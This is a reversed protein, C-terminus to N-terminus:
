RPRIVDLTEGDTRVIVAGDRDTRLIRAGARAYRDLVDPHPFGFTNDPGCSIVAIKPRVARLFLLTSSTHGGHHPAMLIDAELDHGSAILREEVLGSIDAPLLISRRGFTIKMVIGNDNYNSGPFPLERGPPSRDPGLIKISVGGVTCEPVDTGVIRHPIGKERIVKQLMLCSENESEQGNSWFEGVTFNKALFPLGGIHDQDPHTLVMIDIKRIKERWLYPGVVYRGLDFTRDYFGGGDVLMVDGGPFQLLTSSGQGVDIFTVELHRRGASRLNTCFADAIFFLTILGLFSILLIRERARYREKLRETLSPSPAAYSTECEKSRWRNILRVGTLVCLYYLAIEPFTPTTVPISAFPFSSLFEIISTTIRIFFSAVAILVSAVPAFPATVTLLMGLPLVAFGIIPIVLLNSLLTVTSIRNFYLAILPATGIVAALSVLIFLVVANMGRRFIGEGAVRPIVSSLAPTVLLIAAVATFSLQFSVDFLSAPSIVLILFAAFALINLLDRGRGILLAALYCLIMIVARITSIRLGAIFAYGIVPVISCLASVKFINYRLLFQESSRMLARAAALCIFAVIGVHLGSIALIHSVGARNFGRIIDEPIAEKEGLILAQLVSGELTPAGELIRERILSRYREIRTRLYGGARQRMIVIESSRGVYGHLRIGRYLLYREYDFGGPNDFSRPKKLRTSARIYNGYRFVNNSDKVSLLIKGRVPVAGGDRILRRTDIVLRTKGPMIRPPACVMGEVTLRDEGAHRAIHDRGAHPQLYLQVTLVGLLFLSALLCPFARNKSGTAVLFLLVALIAALATLALTGPIDARSGATIGAILATLLPIVPRRLPM